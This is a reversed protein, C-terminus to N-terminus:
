ISDTTGRHYNTIKNLDCLFWHIEHIYQNRKILEHIENLIKVKCNYNLQYNVIKYVNKFLYYIQM